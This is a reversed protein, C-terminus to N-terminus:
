TTREKQPALALRLYITGLGVCAACCILFMVAGGALVVPGLSRFALGLAAALADMAKWVAEASNFWGAVERVPPTLTALRVLRWSEFCLFAFAALLGALSAWQCGLPWAQWERRYWPAASRRAIVRVVRRAVEPPAELEGLAKLERGVSAELQKEYETNV